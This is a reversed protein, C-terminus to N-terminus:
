AARAPESELAHEMWKVIKQLDPPPGNRLISQGERTTAFKLVASMLTAQDALAVEEFTRFGSGVLLQAHTGRLFPITIVLRAQDQWDRVAQATIHRATVADAVADADANLLDRVTFVRAPRLREATKPGISPADVIDDDMSLYFRKEQKGRDVGGAHVLRSSQSRRSSAGGRHNFREGFARFRGGRQRASRWRERDALWRWWSRERRKPRGRLGLRAVQAFRLREFQRSTLRRARARIAGAPRGSGRMRSSRIQFGGHSRDAQRQASAEGSSHEARVPASLSESRGEQSARMALKAAASAVVASAAADSGWGARACEGEGPRTNAGAEVPARDSNAVNPLSGSTAAVEAHELRAVIQSLRELGRTQRELMGVLGAIRRDRERDAALRAGNADSGSQKAIQGDAGDGSSGFANAPNGRLVEGAALEALQRQMADLQTVFAQMQSQWDEAAPLRERQRSLEHLASVIRQRDEDARAEIVELRVDLDSLAVRVDLMHAAGERADVALTEDKSGAGNVDAGGQMGIEATGTVAYRFDRQGAHLVSFLDSLVEDGPQYAMLVALFDGPQAFAAGRARADAAGFELATAVDGALTPVYSLPGFREAASHGTEAMVQAAEERLWAINVSASALWARGVALSTMAHLVHEFGIEAAGHAHAARFAVDMIDAVEEDVGCVVDDDMAAALRQCRRCVCM